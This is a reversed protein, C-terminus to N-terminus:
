NLTKRSIPPGSESLCPRRGTKSVPSITNVPAVVAQKTAVFMACNTTGRMRWPTAGASGALDLPSNEPHNARYLQLM